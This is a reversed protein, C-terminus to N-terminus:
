PRFDLTFSRWFGTVDAEERSPSYREMIAERAREAQADFAHPDRRLAALVQEAARAFGLVDGEEIPWSYSPDFYERGGRGHYGVVLCGCLM